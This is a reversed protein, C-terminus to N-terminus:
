NGRYVNQLQVNTNESTHACHGTRGNEATAHDAKWTLKLQNIFSESVTGTAGRIVPIIKLNCM